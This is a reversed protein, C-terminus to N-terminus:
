TSCSGPCHLTRAPQRCPDHKLRSESTSDRPQDSITDAGDTETPSAPGAIQSGLDQVEFWGKAFEPTSEVPAAREAAAPTAIRLANALVGSPEAGLPALLKLVREAEGKLSKVRLDVPARRCHGVSRVGARM